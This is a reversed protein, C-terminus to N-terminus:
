PNKREPNLKFVNRRRIARSRALRVWRPQSAGTERIENIRAAPGAIAAVAAAILIKHRDTLPTVPETM